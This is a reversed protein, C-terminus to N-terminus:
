ERSIVVLICKTYMVPTLNFKDMYSGEAKTDSEQFCYKNENVNTKQLLTRTKTVNFFWEGEHNM